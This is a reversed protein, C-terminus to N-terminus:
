ASTGRLLALPSPGSSPATKGMGVRSRPTAGLEVLVALLRASLKELVVAATEPDATDIAAALREALRVAAADEPQVALERVTEAVAPGLMSDM